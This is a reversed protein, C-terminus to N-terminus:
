LSLSVGRAEGRVLAAVDENGQQLVALTQAAENAVDGAASGLLGVLVAAAGPVQVVAAQAAANGAVLASLLQLVKGRVTKTKDLLRGAAAPSCLM